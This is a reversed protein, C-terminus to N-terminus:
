LVTKRDDWEDNAGSATLRRAKCQIVNSRRAATVLSGANVNQRRGPPKACLACSMRTGHAACHLATCHAHAAAAADRECNVPAPACEVGDEAFWGLEVM